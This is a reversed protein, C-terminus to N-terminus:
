EKFEVKEDARDELLEPHEIGIRKIEKEIAEITALHEDIKACLAGLKETDFDNGAKLASYIYEGIEEKVDKIKGKELVIKGKAKGYDLTEGAMEGVKNAMQGLEDIFAM